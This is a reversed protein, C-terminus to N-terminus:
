ALDKATTGPVPPPESASERVLWTSSVMMLLTGFSYLSAVIAFPIRPQFESFAPGTLTLALSGAVLTLTMFASMSQPRLGPPTRRTQLAATPAEIFGMFIGGLCLVVGFTVVHLDVVAVWLVLSEAVAGSIMLRVPKVAKMLPGVLLNGVVAGVGFVALLAGVVRPDDDYRSFALIPIAAFVCQWAMEFAVNAVTWMRLVRDQWLFRLGAVLEGRKTSRPAAKGTQVFLSILLFAVLFSGADIWLVQRAGFAAVLVGGLPAGVLLTVRNAVGLLSNARTLLQDDEGVLEPLLVRQSAYYPTFFGGIVFVLGLLVPFTLLDMGNLLPILAILVARSGDALRMFTRTGLRAAFVGGPIGFIAMSLMQVALVLSM